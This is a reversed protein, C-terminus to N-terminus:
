GGAAILDQVQKLLASAKFPMTVVRRLDDEVAEAALEMQRASTILLAPVKKLYPDPALANFVEVADRGLMQSSMLLLNAPRPVTEFRTLARRPNETVLVKFGKETFFQRLSDQSKGSVEVLMIKPKDGGAVAAAGAAAPLVAATQAVRQLQGPQQGPQDAAQYRVRIPELAQRVEVATQFREKPKVNLMEGITASKPARGINILYKLTEPAAIYIVRSIMDRAVEIVEEMSKGQQAAKAAEMVVFALAGASTKSDIIEIKAGTNQRRVHRKAQYASEHSATLARSVLICVISDTTRSLEEFEHVFDGPSVATTSPQEKMDDIRKLIDQRSIDIYDRYHKGDIVLGVPLM